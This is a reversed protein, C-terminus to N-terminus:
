VDAGGKQLEELRVCLAAIEANAKETWGRVLERYAEHATADYEGPFGHEMHHRRMEDERSLSMDINEERKMNDQRLAWIRAKIKDIETM